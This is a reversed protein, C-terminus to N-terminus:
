AAEALQDVRCGDPLWLSRPQWSRTPETTVSASTPILAHSGPLWMRRSGLIQGIEDFDSPRWLYVEAGGRALGTLWEVQRDTIPTAVKEERKLEAFIVRDRVLVRDPFGPDSGRSRLTHYRLSWGLLTAVGNKSGFIQADWEKELIEDLPKAPGIRAPM